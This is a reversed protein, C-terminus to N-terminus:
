YPRFKRAARLQQIQQRDEDFKSQLMMLENRQAERKQFRYFDPGIGNQKKKTLKDQVAAQSVSGVAAGSEGDTLKKRGKHHEVVTWGDEVIHAEREKREMPYDVKKESIRNYERQGRKCTMEMGTSCDEDGYSMYLVVDEMVEGVKQKLGLGENSSTHNRNKKKKKNRHFSKSADEVRDAAIEIEEDIGSISVEEDLAEVIDKDKRKKKRSATEDISKHKARGVSGVVGNVAEGSNANSEKATERKPRKMKGGIAVMIGSDVVKVNKVKVAKVVGHENGIMKPGGSPKKDLRVKERNCVCVLQTM